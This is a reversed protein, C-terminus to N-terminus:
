IWKGRRKMQNSRRSPASGVPSQSRRPRVRMEFPDGEHLFLDGDYTGPDRSEAGTKQEVLQVVDGQELRGGQEASMGGCHIDAQGTAAIGDIGTKDHEVVTGVRIEQFQQLPDPHRALGGLHAERDLAGLPQLVVAVVQVGQKGLAAVQQARAEVTEHGLDQAEVPLGAGPQRVAPAAPIAAFRGQPIKQQQPLEAVVEGAVVDQGHPRGDPRGGQSVHAGKRQTEEQTEKGVVTQQIHGVTGLPVDNRAARPFIYAREGCAPHRPDPQGTRHLRDPARGLPHKDLAAIPLLVKVLHDEGTM